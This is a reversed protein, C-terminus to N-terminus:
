TPGVSFIRWKKILDGKVSHELNLMSVQRGVRHWWIPKKKLDTWGIAPQILGGWAVFYPGTELFLLFWLFLEIRFIIQM